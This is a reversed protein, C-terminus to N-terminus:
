AQVARAWDLADELRDNGWFLEGDATVFSPAGYIGLSIATETEAKLRAKNEPSQARSWVTEANLGMDDLIGTLTDPESIDKGGAFEASYVRKTFEPCWGDDVGVLALRAAQLGNQPFTEPRVLDLGLKECQREMDRWMNRGKARYLNFPSTTWGQAVFIPGLLFPRWGITVGADAAAAEIRMAALYSYTSAF